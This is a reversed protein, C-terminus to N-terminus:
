PLDFSHVFIYSFDFKTKSFIVILLKSLGENIEPFKFITFDFNDFTDETVSANKKAPATVIEKFDDTACYNELIVLAPSSPDVPPVGPSITCKQFAFRFNRFLSGSSPRSSM